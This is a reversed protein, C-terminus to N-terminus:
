KERRNSVDIQKRDDRKELVEIQGEVKKLFKQRMDDDKLICIRLRSRRVESSNWVAGKWEFEGVVLWHQLGVFISEMEQLVLKEKGRVLIYQRDHDESGGSECTIRENEENKMWTIAVEM